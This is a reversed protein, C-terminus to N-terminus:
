RVEMRTSRPLATVQRGGAVLFVDVGRPYGARTALIAEATTAGLGALRLERPAEIGPGSLTARPAAASDDQEDLLYVATAGESPAVLTGRPLRALAEGGDDATLFAFRAQELESPRGGCRLRVRDTLTVAEPGHVAFTTEDDVLTTALALLPDATATAPLAVAVGPAASAQLLARFTSQALRTQPQIQPIPSM